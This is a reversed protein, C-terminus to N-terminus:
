KDSVKLVNVRFVEITNLSNWQEATLSSQNQANTEALKIAEEGSIFLGLLQYRKNTETYETKFYGQYAPVKAKLALGTEAETAIWFESNAPVQDLRGEVNFYKGVESGNLPWYVEGYQSKNFPNAAASSDFFLSAVGYFLWALVLPLVFCLVKFTGQNLSHPSASLSNTGM